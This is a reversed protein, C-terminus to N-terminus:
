ANRLVIAKVADMRGYGVRQESRAAKEDSPKGEGHRCTMAYRRQLIDRCYSFTIADPSAQTAAALLM